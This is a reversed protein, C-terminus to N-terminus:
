FTYWAFKFPENKRMLDSTASCGGFEEAIESMADTEISSEKPARILGMVAWVPCPHQFVLLGSLL